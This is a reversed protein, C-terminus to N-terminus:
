RINFVPRVKKRQLIIMNFYNHIGDISYRLFTKHGEFKRVSTYVTLDPAYRVSGKGFKNQIRVALDWDESSVLSIDIGDVADYASKRMAMNFGWLIPKNFYNNIKHFIDHFFFVIKFWVSSKDPLNRGGVCMLKSDNFYKNVKQLWDSSPTTDSDVFAIIENKAVTCGAARAPGCGQLKNYKVLRVKYQKAIQSTTDSSNNDVVIIEFADKPYNQNILAKLCKPLLKEENYAAIIISIKRYMGEV